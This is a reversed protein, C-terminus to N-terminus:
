EAPVLELEALSAWPGSAHGSRAVFKIYRAAVPEAFRLFQKTDENRLTGEAALRWAQGDPSTFCSWDKIWGNHNKDQRPLVSIGKLKFPNKCEIVLEHPFGPKTTSWDTHWLTGPDGDIARAAEYGAEESSAHAIHAGLREMTSPPAVLDRLQGLSVEEHPEFKPSKMYSLLSRLMQRAVPRHALNSTIDMSTFLLKGKDFCAEAALGLRRNTVWDDIVQVMPRLDAPLKDMIMPTSASVIEWWQWNSHYETPFDALAPHKPDCLIGLTHPAQRATWATNWFISSFGMKVKGLRDGRVQNPPITWLVKGGRGLVALASDDLTDTVLIDSAPQTDVQAPYLWLDWDNAFSTGALSVTFVLKEAHEVQTLPVRVTGLVGDNGLPISQPPLKGSAVVRGKATALSWRPTINALPAPGFHAVKIAAEFTDGETFIRKPMLALPVTECCYRHHEKDTVYGKSEWFPDLIGVLATGQGPFDHLDLLQFGGFGPTRLASEIDEKYCLAQLKGSALLFDNALDAMDHAALDDRFIEFNKARYVGTYKKIEKFNPYACWQGIEHSVVPVPYQSIFSTYDTVTEPPRANIRSKLGEGWAQIRPTPTVHYDSGPLSPWGSATTYKRRPDRKKWYDVWGSLWANQNQGAPENGYAMLIFSPHNGYAAIVRESEAYSFKQFDTDDVNAWAAIEVQYYFGLEDAAVFAAEPPCWSHFRIHNLGYSQCVRIIHKWSAIDTPPYGTLPFICCELTGRLFMRRGNMTFQTGDQGLERIGFSVTKSAGDGPGGVVEVTLDYLAPSFEDWLQTDEGLAYTADIITSVGSLPVTMELPPPRHSAHGNRSRARIKLQADATNASQSGVVIKLSAKRERVNPYVRVEDVWVPPTTYLKLDGVMGNWNGQTHDSVSHANVGVDVQLRNDVLITLRHRGPVLWRTLDYEHAVSLSDRRGACQDNVWVATAWHCRELSLVVRQGRWSAPIEVTRQYWARGVYYKNPQLWFPIKINGPTRYPAYREEKFWSSDVIQGTWPTNVSVDDGINNEMLSGPLRVEDSLSRNFWAESEGVGQRDLACKWAGGLPIVHSSGAHVGIFGQVIWLCLALAWIEM